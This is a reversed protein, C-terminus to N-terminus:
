EYHVLVKVPRSSSNALREFTAILESRAIEQEFLLELRTPKQRVTPFYWAAHEQYDWGNSTSVVRLEREHFAPTLTLPEINGDAIMCIRGNRQMQGQLLAFARNKSSCEFAVAYKEDAVALDQPFFVIRAGLQYALAHREQRPEVIDIHTIGYAKLIFLTLLGMAGAGTILAAKEPMPGLKRVGSAADCTLIVLLALPDAIDDPVVIVDAESVIAHTRHGYFSVVRDGPHVKQVQPGCAMVVGVSEYGTMLPYEIPHSTRATGSYLPLESGISITGTTTRVLLQHAKLPPLEETIWQLQRQSTLYLSQASIDQMSMEGKQM